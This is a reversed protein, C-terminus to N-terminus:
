LGKVIVGCSQIPGAFDEPYLGEPISLDRIDVIGMNKDFSDLIASICGNFLPGLNGLSPVVSELAEKFKQKKEKIDESDQSSDNNETSVSYDGSMSGDEMVEMIDLFVFSKSNKQLDIQNTKFESGRFGSINEMM